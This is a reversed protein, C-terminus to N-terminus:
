FFPFLDKIKLLIEKGANTTKGLITLLIILVGILVAFVVVTRFGLIMGAKSKKNNTM